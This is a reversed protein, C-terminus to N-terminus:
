ASDARGPPGLYRSISSPSAGPRHLRALREQSALWEAGAPDITWDGTEACPGEPPVPMWRSELLILPGDPLELGMRARAFGGSEKLDVYWGEGGLADPLDVTSSVRVPDGLRVVRDIWLRYRIPARASEARSVASRALSASIEWTAFVRRPDRVLLHLRDDGHRRGRLPAPPGETSTAPGLRDLSSM